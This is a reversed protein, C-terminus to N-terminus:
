WTYMCGSCTWIDATVCCGRADLWPPVDYVALMGFLARQTRSTECEPCAPHQAFRFDLMSSFSGREMRGVCRRCLVGPWDSPLKPPKREFTISDAGYNKGRKGKGRTGREAECQAWPNERARVPPDPAPRQPPDVTHIHVSDRADDGTLDINSDCGDCRGQSHLLIRAATVSTHGFRLEPDWRYRSEGLALEMQIAADGLLQWEHRPDQGWTFGALMVLTPLELLGPAAYGFDVVAQAPNGHAGVRGLETIVSAPDTNLVIAVPDGKHAEGFGHRWPRYPSKPELLAIVADKWDTGEVIHLREPIPQTV